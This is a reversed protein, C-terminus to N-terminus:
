LRPLKRTCLNGVFGCHQRTAFCLSPSVAGHILNIAIVYGLPVMLYYIVKFYADIFM